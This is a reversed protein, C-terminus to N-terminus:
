AAQLKCESALLDELRHLRRAFAASSFLAGRRWVAFHQLPFKAQSNLFSARGAAAHRYGCTAAVKLLARLSCTRCMSHCLFRFIFISCSFLSPSFLARCQIYRSALFGLPEAM